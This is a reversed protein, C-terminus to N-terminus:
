GASRDATYHIVFKEGIDLPITPHVWKVQQPDVDTAVDYHVGLRMVDGGEHVVRVLFDGTADLAVPFELEHYNVGDVVTWVEIEESTNTALPVISPDVALVTFESYQAVVVVDPYFSMTPDFAPAPWTVVAGSATKKARMLVGM